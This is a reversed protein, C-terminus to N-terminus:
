KDGGLFKRYAVLAEMYHCFTILRERSDGVEDLVKMLRAEEIFTKVSPERGAEYVMRMKLYQLREKLNENLKPDRELRVNNYIESVMSLISRIKSTTVLDKQRSGNDCLKRMVQEAHDVYNEKTIVM